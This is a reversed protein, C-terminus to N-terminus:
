SLGGDLLEIGGDLDRANDGDRTGGHLTWRGDSTAGGRNNRASGMARLSAIGCRLLHYSPLNHARLVSNIPHTPCRTQPSIGRLALAGSLIRLSVICFSARERL